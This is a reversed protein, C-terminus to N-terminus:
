VTFFQNDRKVPLGYTSYANTNTVGRHISRVRLSAERTTAIGLTVNTYGFDSLPFTDREYVTEQSHSFEKEPLRGAM